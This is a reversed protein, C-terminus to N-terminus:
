NYDNGNVARKENMLSYILEAIAPAKLMDGLVQVLDDKDLVATGYSQRCGADRDEKYLYSIHGPYGGHDLTFEVLTEQRGTELNKLVVWFNVSNVPILLFAKLRGNAADEIEDALREVIAVIEKHEAEKKAKEELVGLATLCVQKFDVTKTM